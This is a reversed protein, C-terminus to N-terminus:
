FRVGAGVVLASADFDTLLEGQVFFSGGEGFKIGGFFHAGVDNSSEGAASAHVLGVGGGLFPSVSSDSGPTVIVNGFFALYNGSEDFDDFTQHNFKVEGGVRIVDALPADVGGGFWLRRIAGDGEPSDIQFGGMVFGGVQAAATSPVLAFAAIALSAVLLHKRM